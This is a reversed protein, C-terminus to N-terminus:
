ADRRQVELQLPTTPLAMELLINKASGEVKPTNAPRYLYPAKEALHCTRMNTHGFRWLGTRM